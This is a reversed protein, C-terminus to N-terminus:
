QRAFANTQENWRLRVVPRGLIAPPIGGMEPYFVDIRPQRFRIRLAEALGFLMVPQRISEVGGVILSAMGDVIFLTGPQPERVEAVIMDIIRESLEGNRRFRENVSQLGVISTVTWAVTVVACAARLWAQSGLSAWVSRGLHVLLIVWGVTALYMYRGAIWALPLFPLFAIAIWGGALWVQRREAVPSILVAACFLLGAAPVATWGSLPLPNLLFRAAGAIQKLTSWAAVEVQGHALRAAGVVGAMFSDVVAYRLCAYLLLVVVYTVLANSRRANRPALWDTLVVLLPFCLASEKSLLGLGFTLAAAAWRGNRHLLLAGLVFATALLDARGSIWAVVDGHTPHVAFLLAAALGATPSRLLDSALRWLLCVNVAQLGVNTLHYVFPQVGGVMHNLYFSVQVLPRVFNHNFPSVVLARWWSVGDSARVAEIWLYDDNVFGFATSWGYNLAVWGLLLVLAPM